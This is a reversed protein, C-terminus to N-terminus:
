WEMEEDEEDTDWNDNECGFLSLQENERPMERLNKACSAFDELCWKSSEYRRMTVLDDNEIAKGLEAVHATIRKVNFQKENQPSLSEVRRCLFCYNPDVFCSELLAQANARIEEARAMYDPDVEPPPDRCYIEPCQEPPTTEAIM